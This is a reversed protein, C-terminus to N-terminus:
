AKFPDPKPQDEVIRRLREPDIKALEIIENALSRRGDNFATSYPDGPVHVPTNIAGRAAIDALVYTLKGLDAYEATVRRRIQAHPWLGRFWVRWPEISWRKM